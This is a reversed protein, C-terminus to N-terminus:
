EYAARCEAVKARGQPPIQPAVPVSSTVDDVETYPNIAAAASGGALVGALRHRLGGSGPCHGAVRPHGLPDVASLPRNEVPDGFLACATLSNTARAPTSDVQSRESWDAHQYLWPGASSYVALSSPHPVAAFNLAVSPINREHKAIAPRSLRM